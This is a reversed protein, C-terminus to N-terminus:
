YEFIGFWILMMENMYIKGRKDCKDHYQQSKLRVTSISRPRMVFYGVVKAEVLDIFPKDLLWAFVNEVLTGIRSKM